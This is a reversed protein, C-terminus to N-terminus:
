KSAGETQYIATVEAHSLARSYIRLDDVAGRMSSLGWYHRGILMPADDSAVFSATGAYTGGADVGDILIDIDGPARVIAVVHSWTFTSVAGSSRKGHRDAPGTGQNDGFGTVVTWGSSGDVTLWAGAYNGGPRANTAVVTMSVTENTPKVWASITYPLSLDNLVDGMDIQHNGIFYAASGVPLTGDWQVTGMAGVLGSPFRASTTPGSGEDFEMWVELASECVGGVCTGDPTVSCDEAQLEGLENCTYAVNGECFSESPTCLLPESGGGGASPGPNGGFGGPGSAGGGPGSAPGAADGGSGTAGVGAADTEEFLGADGGCAAALPAIIIATAMQMIPRM